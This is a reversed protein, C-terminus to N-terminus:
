SALATSAPDKEYLHSNRIHEEIAPVPPLLHTIPLGVRINNRIDTASGELPTWRIPKISLPISQGNPFQLTKPIPIKGRRLAVYLLNAALVNGDEWTPLSALSDAGIIYPIKFPHHDFGPYLARYTNITVSPIPLRSEIDSVEFRSDSQCLLELMKLRDSFDAMDTAPGIAKHPPHFVPIWRLKSFGLELAKKAILFHLNTVPNFTGNLNIVKLQEPSLQLRGFRLIKPKLSPSFRPIIPKIQM